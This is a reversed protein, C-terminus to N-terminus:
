CLNLERFRSLHRKLYPIHEPAVKDLKLQSNIGLANLSAILLSPAIQILGFEDFSILYQDFLRDVNPTLLLGNYVDMREQDNAESWPVIHSAILIQSVDCGTVACRGWYNLLKSRFLDQGVRLTAEAQRTTPLGASSFDQKQEITEATVWSLEELAVALEDHMVWGGHGREDPTNDWDGIASIKDFGSQDLQMADALMGAFLGYQLSGARYGNYGAIQAMELVSLRLNEAYYHGLLIKKVNVPIRTEISLLARKYTEVLLDYDDEFSDIADNDSTMM